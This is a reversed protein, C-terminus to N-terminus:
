GTINACDSWANIIEQKTSVKGKRTYREKNATKLLPYANEDKDIANQKTEETEEKYPVGLRECMRKGFTQIIATLFALSSNRIDEKTLTTNFLLM